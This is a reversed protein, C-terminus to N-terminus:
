LLAGKEIGFYVAILEGIVVFGLVVYLIGTASQNSRIRACALAMWTLVIACVIGVAFRVVALLVLVPDAAGWAELRPLEGALTAAALVGRMVIALGLARCANILVDFSLTGSELYSHGVLM